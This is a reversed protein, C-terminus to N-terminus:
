VNTVYVTVMGEPVDFIKAIAQHYVTLQDGHDVKGPLGECKFDIVEIRSIKAGERHVHLRDIVGSIWKGDLEVEVAQERYLTVDGSPQTFVARVDAEQLSARLRRGADTDPLEPMEGPKLWEIAECLEHVATGLALAEIREASLAGKVDKSAKGRAREKALPPLEVEPATDVNNAAIEEDLYWEPDGKSYIPEDGGCARRLWESFSEKSKGTAEPMQIYLARKARTMAVYLICFNEYAQTALWESEAKALVPLAQRVWQKPTQMILEVERDENEIRCVDYKGASVEKSDSLEPMIVIDFGLGKSKHITMLQIAGSMEDTPAEYADLADALAGADTVGGAVAAEVAQLIQELRQAGFTSLQDGARAKLFESWGDRDASAHWDKWTKAKEDGPLWGAMELHRSEFDDAPNQMWRLTAVLARGLVNDQAPRIVGEEAVLHGESRLREAYTKVADNGRFLLACSLGREIPQVERLIELVAAMQVDEVDDDKAVEYVCAYAPKEPIAEAKRHEDWQWADVADTPFLERMVSEASFVTNVLDLVPQQSRYSEAMTTPVLNPYRGLVEDFLEHDGGRWAYIGQKKDGVVFLGRGDDGENVVEDILNQVGLWQERSTDQFEDLLWQDYRSDLRFDVQERRLRAVESKAWESMKLKLDDFTLKGARRQQLDYRTEYAHMVQYLHATQSLKTLAEQAAITQILERMVQRARDSFAYNKRSFNIDVSGTEFDEWQELVKKLMGKGGFESSGDYTTLEELMDAVPKGEPAVLGLEEVLKERQTKLAAETPLMGELAVEANGWPLPSPTDLYRRHWKQVFEQMLQSIRQEEKGLTAMKFAFLFEERQEKTLNEGILLQSVVSQLAQEAADGQVLEFQGGGVGLEYQFCRVVKAFFSDLTGLFLEPLQAVVRELAVAFETSGAGECGIESAIQKAFDEDGAAKSLKQLIADAFEGAAKKTFTLAAIKKPEVGRMILGIVRNSLRYTKGSGASALVVENNLPKM